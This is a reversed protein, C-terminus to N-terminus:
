ISLVFRSRASPHASCISTLSSFAVAPLQPIDGGLLAGVLDREADTLDTDRSSRTVKLMAPAGFIRIGARPFGIGSTGHRSTLM